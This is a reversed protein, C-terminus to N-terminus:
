LSHSPCVTRTTGRLPKSLFWGLLDNKKRHTCHWGIFRVFITTRTQQKLCSAAVCTMMSGLPTIAIFRRTRMHTSPEPRWPAARYALSNYSRFIIRKTADELWRRQIPEREKEGCSLLARLLSLSLSAYKQIQQQIRAAPQLSGNQYCVMRAWIIHDNAQGCRWQEEGIGIKESCCPLIHKAMMVQTITINSTIM